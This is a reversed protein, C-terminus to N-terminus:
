PKVVTFTQEAIKHNGYWVQFTWKGPVLEWPDDFAYWTLRSKTGIAINQETAYQNVAAKGPPRIGGPPYLVIERVKVNAGVPAGTIKYEFGFHSGLIAPITQTSAALKIDSINSVLVGESNRSLPTQHVAYIGRSVIEARQVTVSQAAALGVGTVLLLLAIGSRKMTM